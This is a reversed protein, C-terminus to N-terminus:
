LANRLYVTDSYIVEVTLPQNTRTGYIERSATVTVKIINDHIDGDADEFKEFKLGSIGLTSDLRYAAGNTHKYYVVGKGGFTGYYFERKANPADPVLHFVIRSAPNGAQNMIQPYQNDGPDKCAWAIGNRRKYTTSGVTYSGAVDGALGPVSTVGEIVNLLGVRAAREVELRPSMEAWWQWVMLYVSWGSAIVMTGILAAILIEALTFGRRAKLPRKIISLSM